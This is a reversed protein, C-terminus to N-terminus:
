CAGKPDVKDVVPAGLRLCTLLNQATDLEYVLRAGQSPLLSRVLRLGTGLGRGSDIDFGPSGTLANRIVIQASHGDASLSVTPDGAGPPTHKIANLVLENIILAVPVAENSDIRVPIFPTGEQEISFQVSRQALGSVTQCISRISNCLRITEDPDASQLGHVVAIANVQSIATQLRPNIDVFRGLERQLLGAVSQLNNKIRHHVERVLTDRQQRAFVLRETEAQRRATIDEALGVTYPEEGHAGNVVMVNLSVWVIDGNKAIYRKEMSFHSAEGAMLGNINWVNLKVDDPHTVETFRKGLLETESYGLMRCLAPNVQRYRQDMGAVGIGIPSLEFVARFIQESQRLRTRTSIDTLALLVMGPAGGVEARRCDVLAQFYSGDNRRLLLEARGTGEHKRTSLFFQMWRAQDDHAVFLTFRFHLLDKREVGLLNLGTQNIKEILGASSLLLYGIPALEFLDAYRNRSAEQAIQAQRLAENQMELEIQHVQLEHLLEEASRHHAETARAKVLEAEAAARLHLRPLNREESTKMFEGM